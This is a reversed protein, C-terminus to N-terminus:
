YSDWQERGNTELVIEKAAPPGWGQVSRNLLARDGSDTHQTNNGSCHFHAGVQTPPWSGTLPSEAKRQAGRGTWPPESCRTDGQGGTGRKARLM